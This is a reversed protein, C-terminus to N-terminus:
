ATSSVRVGGLPDFAQKFTFALPSAGDRRLADLRDAAEEIEPIHGAPVWWLVFHSEAPMHFWEKRRAMIKTHATKYTFAFLSEVDRWISMNVITGDGYPNFSMADGAEDQLRWVFGESREALANIEDLAGVFDVVDPADRSTLFTAVNLQALHFQVAGTCGNSM